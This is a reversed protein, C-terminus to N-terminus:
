VQSYYEITRAIGTQLDVRAQWGTKNRFLTTDAAYDRSEIAHYDDPPQIHSVEVHRQLRDGALRAVAEFAEKISVPKGFGINYYGANVVDVKEAAQLFASVVDEIYLYDRLQSGDGYVTLTNGQMANMIMRNLVNRDSSGHHAGPGYINPLRLTCGRIYGAAAYCGLYKEVALKHIDYVTLPSDSHEESVPVEDVLGVQTATGAFLVVPTVGASRCYELMGLFPIVNIDLDELPAQNAVYSSTQASLYFVVDCSDLLRQWIGPDTVDSEHDELIARGEYQRLNNRNRTVRRITCGTSMLEATLRSGIYGSAGTILITKGEFYSYNVAIVEHIFPTYRKSSRTHVM